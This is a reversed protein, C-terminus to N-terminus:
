TPREDLALPDSGYPYIPKKTSGGAERVRSASFIPHICLIEANVAKGDVPHTYTFEAVHYRKTDRKWEGLVGMSGMTMLFESKDIGLPRCHREVFASLREDDFRNPLYTLTLDLLHRVSEWAPRFASLSETRFTNESEVVAATLDRTTARASPQRRRILGALVKNLIILLHRPTLQTHRLLYALPDEQQGKRNKFSSEEGILNRLLAIDHHPTSDVGSGDLIAEYASPARLQLHVRYREAAIKIIESAHWRLYFADAFDRAPNKCFLELNSAAIESPFCCRISFLRYERQGNLSACRLLGAVEARYEYLQKDIDDLSDVAIIPLHDKTGLITKAAAVATNLTTGDAGQLRSFYSKIDDGPALPTTKFATLAREIFAVILDDANDANSLHGLYNRCTAREVHLDASATPTVLHAIMVHWLAITWVDAVDDAFTPAQRRELERVLRRMSRFARRNRVAILDAGATVAGQLISTKGSGRRGVIVSPRRSLALRHLPVETYLYARLSADPPVETAVEPGLPRVETFYELLDRPAGPDRAM